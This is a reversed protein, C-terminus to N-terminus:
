GNSTVRVLRRPTGGVLIGGALSARQSGSRDQERGATPDFRSWRRDGHGCRHGRRGRPEGAVRDAGRGRSAGPPARAATPLRVGRRSWATCRASQELIESRTSGPSVANATIGSGRLEAGLARILGVVEAKAACYAALMPLGRSAAASAVVILRGQRPQPRRLMAPIAARAAAFAGGLNAEVVADLQEEAMEWLPVGGAIVGAAAIFADLGGHKAEAEGVVVRMAEVDGADALTAAVRRGASKAVAALEAPSGMAYPLRPDDGARDVAVVTWGDAALARVTAAGIGRAAGTVVAVRPEPATGPSVGGEGDASAAM